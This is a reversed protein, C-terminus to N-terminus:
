FKHVLNFFLSSLRLLGQSHMDTLYSCLKLQWTQLRPISWHSPLLESQSEPITALCASITMRILPVNFLYFIYSLLSCEACHKLQGNWLFSWVRISSDTPFLQWLTFIPPTHTHTTRQQNIAPLFLIIENTTDKLNEKASPKSSMWQKGMFRKTMSATVCKM